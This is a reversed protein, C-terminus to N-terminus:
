SMHILDSMRQSYSAEKAITLDFRSRYGKVNTSIKFIKDSSNAL